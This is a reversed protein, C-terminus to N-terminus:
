SSLSTSLSSSLSSSLSTAAGGWFGRLRFFLAAKAGVFTDFFGTLLLSIDYLLFRRLKCEIMEALKAVAQEETLGCTGMPPQTFVASAVTSYDVKMKRGGFKTYLFAMAEQIAVPTLQMRDTIDGIAYINDVSTKSYADVKVAGGPALEVGAAEMDSLVQFAQDLMKSKGYTVIQQTYWRL